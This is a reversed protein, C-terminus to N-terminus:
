KGALARKILRLPKTVKWSNSDLLGDIQNKLRKNEEELVGLKAIYEQLQLQM